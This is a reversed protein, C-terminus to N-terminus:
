SHSKGPRPGPDVEGGADEDYGRTERPIPRVRIISRISDPSGSIRSRALRPTGFGPIPEAARMEMSLMAMRKKRSIRHKPEVKLGKYAGEVSFGNILDVRAQLGSLPSEAGGNTRTTAVKLAMLQSSPMDRSGLGDTLALGNVMGNGFTLGSGNTLGVGNTLGRGNRSMELPDTTVDVGRNSLSGGEDRTRVEGPASRPQREVLHDSPKNESRKFVILNM